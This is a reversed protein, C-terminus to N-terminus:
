AIFMCVSKGIRLKSFEDDAGRLISVVKDRFFLDRRAQPERIQELSITHTPMPIMDKILRPIIRLHANLLPNTSPTSSPSHYSFTKEYTDVIYFISM